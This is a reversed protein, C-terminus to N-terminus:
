NKTAAGAAAKVAEKTVQKGINDLIPATIFKNAVGNSIDQLTKEATTQIVKKSTKSLWGPQSQNLADVKKLAETRANFFKLDEDSMNKGLGAKAETKLRNYRASSTEPGSPKSAANKVHDPSDARKQAAVKLQSRNRRVGWRMGKVGSDERDGEEPQAMALYDKSNM